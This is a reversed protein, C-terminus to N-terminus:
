LGSMKPNTSWQSRTQQFINLFFHFISRSSGFIFLSEPNLGPKGCIKSDPDPNSFVRMIRGSEVRADWIRALQCLDVKSSISHM